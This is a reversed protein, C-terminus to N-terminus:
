LLCYNKGLVYWEDQLEFLACTYIKKGRSLAIVVRGGPMWKHMVKLPWVNINVEKFHLGAALGLTSLPPSSPLKKFAQNYQATQLIIMFPFFYFFWKKKVIYKCIKGQQLVILFFVTNWLEYVSTCLQFQGLKFKQAM